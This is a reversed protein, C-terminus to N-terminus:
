DPADVATLLCPRRVNRAPQRETRAEAPSGGAAGLRRITRCIASVGLSHQARAIRAHTTAIATSRTAAMRTGPAANASRVNAGRNVVVSRPWTTMAPLVTMVHGVLAEPQAAARAPVDDSSLPSKSM